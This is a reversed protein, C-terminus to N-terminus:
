MIINIVVPTQDNKKKRPHRSPRHMLIVKIVVYGSCRALVPDHTYM